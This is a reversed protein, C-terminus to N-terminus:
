SLVRGENYAPNGDNLKVCAITLHPTIKHQLWEGCTPTLGCCAKALNATSCPLLYRRRQEIRYLATAANSYPNSYLCVSDSQPFDASSGCRHSPHRSSSHPKWKNAARTQRHQCHEVRYREGHHVPMLHGFDSSVDL